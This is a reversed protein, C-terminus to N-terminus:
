SGRCHMNWYSVTWSTIWLMRTMLIMDGCYDQKNIMIMIIINIDDLRMEM